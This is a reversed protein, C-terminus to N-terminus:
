QKLTLQATIYAQELLNLQPWAAGSDVLLKKIFNDCRTKSGVYPQRSLFEKHLEILSDWNNYQLEAWTAIQKLEQIFKTTNYFCGFPFNYVDFEPGYTMKTRQTEIFGSQHPNLFGQMFFDHLVHRPCDPREATLELLELHHQEICESKIYEPLNEFDSITNVDPWSPDRVANYSTAIQNTFYSQMITDLVPKYSQNNLKHYTNIELQDSDYGYDGARLLSIESLELIDDEHIRVSIVKKCEIAHGWTSYHSAKFLTDKTYQKDHSAGYKNFPLGTTANVMSNCAFELFNGHAGGQFDIAIM